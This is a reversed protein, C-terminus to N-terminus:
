EFGEARGSESAECYRLNFPKKLIMCFTRIEQQSM